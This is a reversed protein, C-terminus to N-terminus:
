SEKLWEPVEEHSLISDLNEARRLLAHRGDPAVLVVAPRYTIFQMWQTVNYAGVNRFVMRDGPKMPPFQMTHRMVDINMCLPGYIVTPEPIGQFEQAPVVDHNYWFSTFLVNVGADIVLARRRDPLRKNAHVTSILYGAGDVLTRGSELVLTPMEKAPLNLSALGDALAEAYRDLPPTAQEGPLYQAQLTNHSAIGGGVDIFKIKIGFEERLQNAFISLKEAAQKYVIPDQIFTGLHCHLGVLDMKDGVQIRRVADRAQGGELNFGFRGWAPTGDTTMNLRIAVGPRLKLSEAVKEALALEDFHDIHVMSNGEFAKKLASAPKYPGNFHIRESPVGLHIAKDYEFESVVEAWSGERHMISCIGDLYNTKYSWAIRVKPYRLSVAERLERVREVITKESFVFLPSGYAKVLEEVPVGAIETMPRAAGTRSFKNMMGMQHCVLVPREYIKKSM